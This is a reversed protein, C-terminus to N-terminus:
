PQIGRYHVPANTEPTEFAPDFHLPDRLAAKELWLRRQKTDLTMTYRSLVGLGLRAPFAPPLGNDEHTTVLVDAIVHRGLALPGSTESEAPMSIDFDGATDIVLLITQGGLTGEIAPRGRWDRLVPTARVQEPDMPRYTADTAFLVNRKAFDFRVFSFSRLAAAGLVGHIRAGLKRRAEIREPDDEFAEEARALSGLGGRAPPVYFVPSEMHLRHDLVVKNGVGAYGPIDAVVHDPYEGMPPKFPRYDMFPVLPLLLWNQRASTDLLLPFDTGRSTKARLLPLPMGRPSSLPLQATRHPHVRNAFEFRPGAPDHYITIGYTRADRGAELFRDLESQPLPDPELPAPPTACGAIGALAAALLLRLFFSVNM